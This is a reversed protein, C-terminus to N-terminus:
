GGKEIEFTKLTSVETYTPVGDELESLYVAKVFYEVSEEFIIPFNSTIEIVGDGLSLEPSTFEDPYKFAFDDGQMEVTYDVGELCPNIGDNEYPHCLNVAVEYYDAGVGRFSMEFTSSQEPITEPYVINPTEIIPPILVEIEKEAYVGDEFTIKVLFTYSGSSLDVEDLAVSCRHPFIPRHCTDGSDREKNDVGSVYMYKPQLELPLDVTYVSVEPNEPQKLGLDPRELYLDFELSSDYGFSSNDIFLVRDLMLEVDGEVVPEDIEDEEIPTCAPFLLSTVVFM